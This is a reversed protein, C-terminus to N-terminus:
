WFNRLRAMGRQQSLSFTSPYIHFSIVTFHQFTVLIFVCLTLDIRPKLPLIGHSCTAMFAMRLQQQTISVNLPRLHFCVCVCMAPYGQIPYMKYVGTLGAM